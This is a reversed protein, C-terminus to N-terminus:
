LDGLMINDFDESLSALSDEPGAFNRLNQLLVPREPSQGPVSRCRFEKVEKPILRIEMELIQLWQIM